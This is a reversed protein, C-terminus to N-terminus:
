LEKQRMWIDYLLLTALSVAVPLVHVLGRAYGTQMIAETSLPTFFYFFLQGCSAIVFYLTLLQLPWSLALRPRLLLLIILLPFFLLWNGEFFTNITIAIAVGEQWGLEFFTNISKANGFTLGHSWKFSLWCGLIVLLFVALLALPQVCDRLQLVGRRRLQWLTLLLGAAMLPFYMLLGENKTFPLLAIAFAAARLWSRATEPRNATASGMLLFMAAIIHSSLYVDAYANMGHILFLPLSALGYTGLLAWVLPLRRRLLFFTLALCAMYWVAHISNILGEDWGGRVTALWTKSLPVTPPYASVGNPETDPPIVLRIEGHTYFAKGRMNWNDTSDDFFSPTAVLLMGAGLIRLVTWMGLLMLGLTAWKPLPNNTPLVVPTTPPDLKRLRQLHVWGAGLPLLMTVFVILFGPLTFPIQVTLHLLFAWFFSATIGLVCGLVWREAARLVPTRWELVTLALWGVLTTPLLGIPLLLFSM